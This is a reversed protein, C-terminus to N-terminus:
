QINCELGLRKATNLSMINCRADTDVELLVSQGNVKLDTVWENDNVITVTLMTANKIMMVCSLMASNMMCMIMMCMIMTCMIMMCMIDDYVDDSQVDDPNANDFMDANCQEDYM